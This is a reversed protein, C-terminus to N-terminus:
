NDVEIVVEFRGDFFESAARVWTMETKLCRYIIASEKTSELFAIGLFEYHNGTKLHKYIQGKLSHM